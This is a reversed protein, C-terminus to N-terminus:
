LNGAKFDEEVIRETLRDCEKLDGAEEAKDKRRKLEKIKDIVEKSVKRHSSNKFPAWIKFDEKKKIKNDGM